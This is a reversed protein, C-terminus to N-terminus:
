TGTYSASASVEVDAVVCKPFVKFDRDYCDATKLGHSRTITCRPEDRCSQGDVMERLVVAYLM